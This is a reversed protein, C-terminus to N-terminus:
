TWNPLDGGPLMMRARQPADYSRNTRDCFEILAAEDQLLFDVLFGLFDPDTSRTRLDGIDAGTMGLFAMLREDDQALWGLVEAALAEAAAKNM